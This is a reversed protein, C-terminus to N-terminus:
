SSFAPTGRKYSFIIGDGVKPASTQHALGLRWILWFSAQSRFFCPRFGDRKKRYKVLLALSRGKSRHRTWGPRILLELILPALPKLPFFPPALKLQLLPPAGCNETKTRNPLLFGLFHSRMIPRHSHSTITRLTASVQFIRRNLSINGFKFVYYM